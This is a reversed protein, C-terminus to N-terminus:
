YSSAVFKTFIVFFTDTNLECEPRVRSKLDQPQQLKLPPPLGFKSQEIADFSQIHRAWRSVNSYESLNENERISSLVRCDLITPSFHGGIYSSTKLHENLDKLNSAM